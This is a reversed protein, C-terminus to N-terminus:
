DEGYETFTGVNYKAFKSHSSFFGEWDYIQSPDAYFNLRHIRNKEMKEFLIKLEKEYQEPNFKTNKAFRFTYADPIVLPWSATGSVPLETINHSSYKFGKLIFKVPGSSSSYKYSLDKLISHIIKLNEKDEFTGFHPTRFAIPSYDFSKELTEHGMVIDQYIEHKSVKSYFYTSKYIKRDSDVVTHQRYGHNIFEYGDNKIRTYVDLGKLLMEGPVAYIPKIGVAVLKNHVDSVVAIDLDTDCDLILMHKKTQIKSTKAIKWLLHPLYRNTIKLLTLSILNM